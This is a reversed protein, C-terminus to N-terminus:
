CNKTAASWPIQQIKVRIGPNHREFEPMLSQVVEGERGMAWFELVTKEANRGYAGLLVLLLLLRILRV